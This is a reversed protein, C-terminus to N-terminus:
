RGSIPPLGRRVTALVVGLISAARNADTACTYVLPMRRWQAVNKLLEATALRGPELFFATPKPVDGLEQQFGGPIVKVYKGVERSREFNKLKRVCNTRIQM